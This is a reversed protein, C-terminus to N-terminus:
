EEEGTVTLAQPGGTQIARCAGYFAQVDGVFEGFINPTVPTMMGPSTPKCYRDYAWYIESVGEPHGHRTGPDYHTFMVDGKQILHTANEVPVVITPDLFIVTCTGSYLAHLCPGKAPLINWLTRCTVPAEAELLRARASIGLGPFSFRMFRAM